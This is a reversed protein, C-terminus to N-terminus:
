KKKDFVLLANWIAFTLLFSVPIIFYYSDPVLSIVELEHLGHLLGISINIYLIIAARSTYKEM